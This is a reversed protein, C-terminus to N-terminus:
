SGCASRGGRVRGREKARERRIGNEGSHRFQIWAACASQAVTITLTRRIRRPHRLPSRLEFFVVTLDHRSSRRSIILRSSIRVSRPRARSQRIRATYSRQRADGFAPSYLRLITMGTYACKDRRKPFEIIVISTVSTIHSLYSLTVSTLAVFVIERCFFFVSSLLYFTRLLFNYHM